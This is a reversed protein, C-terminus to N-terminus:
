QGAILEEVDNIGVLNLYKSAKIKQGLRYSPVADFKLENWVLNNTEKVIDLYKDYILKIDNDNLNFQKAYESIINIDGIDEHKDFYASYILDNYNNLDIGRDKLLYAVAAALDSYVKVIEPKPHAECPYFDFIIDQYKKQLEKLEKLGKCCYPCTYDFFIELRHKM